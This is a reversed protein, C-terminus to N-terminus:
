DNRRGMISLIRIFMNIFDLYLEMAGYIYFKNVDIGPYNQMNVIKNMDYVTLGCFIALIVWDMIIDIMANGVFLNILSIILGVVLGVTCITGLSTMDKQTTKGYLALGGFLLTTALFAYFITEIEFVAFIVSMTIGNILAYAFYLITVTTASLKRFMFSFVLVVALEVIALVGYPLELYLGSQYTVFAAITTVLLGLFMRNFLKIMGDNRNEIFTDRENLIEM